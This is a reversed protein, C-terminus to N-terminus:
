LNLRQSQLQIPTMIGVTEHLMTFRHFLFILFTFPVTGASLFGGPAHAHVEISNQEKLSASQDYPPPKEHDM